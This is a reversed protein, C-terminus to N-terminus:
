FTIPAEGQVDYLLEMDSIPYAAYLFGAALGVEVKASSYVFAFRM